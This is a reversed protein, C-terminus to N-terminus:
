QTPQVGRPWLRNTKDKDVDPVQKSGLSKKQYYMTGVHADCSLRTWERQINHDSTGWSIGVYIGYTAALEACRHSPGYRPHHTSLWAQIKLKGTQVTSDLANKTGVVAYRTGHHQTHHKVEWAKHITTRSPGYVTSIWDDLWWNEFVHPYYEHQFIVMHTRHVMDHTLIRTNGEHCTPGLVGVNPPSYAALTAVGISTWGQTEFETDDNVRVFYDAGRDAAHALIENFPIHHKPNKYAVVHVPTEGALKQLSAVNVPDTWFADDDDVGVFVEYRYLHFEATLLFSPLMLKAVAMHGFDLPVIGRSTACTVVAVFYLPGQVPTPSVLAPLTNLPTPIHSTQVVYPVYTIPPAESESNRLRKAIQSNQFRYTHVMSMIVLTAVTVQLCVLLVNPRM